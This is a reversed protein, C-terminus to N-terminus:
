PTSTYPVGLAAALRTAVAGVPERGHAWLVSVPVPHGRRPVVHVQFVAGEAEDTSEVLRVATIDAVAFRMADRGFVGWRVIEVQRRLRDLRLRSFPARVLMWIGVVIAVTGMVIALVGQWSVFTGAGRVLARTVFVFIAGVGIFLLALLWHWGPADRIELTDAHEVLRM